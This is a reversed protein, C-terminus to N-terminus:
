NSRFDFLSPYSSYSKCKLSPVLIPKLKPTIRTTPTTTYSIEASGCCLVEFYSDVLIVFNLQCAKELDIM